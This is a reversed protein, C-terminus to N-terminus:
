PSDQKRRNLAAPAPSSKKHKKQLLDMRVLPQGDENYAIIYQAGNYSCGGAYKAVSLQTNQWNYIKEPTKQM